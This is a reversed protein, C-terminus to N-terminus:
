LGPVDLMLVGRDALSASYWSGVGQQVSNYTYEARQKEMNYHTLNQIIFMIKNM